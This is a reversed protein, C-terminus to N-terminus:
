PIKSLGDACGQGDNILLTQSARLGKLLGLATWGQVLMATAKAFDLEEPILVVQEAKAVAYEVYGGSALRATVRQGVEFNSVEEGVAEIVGAVEFGPTFPIQPKFFYTGARLMTDAYNVGAVAVRILVECAGTVPKEVEDVSLAEPRGFEHIRIAKM